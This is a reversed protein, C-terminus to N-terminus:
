PRSRRVAKVELTYEWHNLRGRRRVLRFQRGFVPSTQWGGRNSAAVYGSKHHVLIQFDIEEHRADVLWYESVRALHYQKRLQKTDKRVSSKSIIELIWDPSGELEIYQGEEGERPILRVRGSELGEWTVFTADPETSLNAEVNTVLTGDPYFEGRKTRKNLGVLVYGIEGKVKGHTEIEEPSMDIFIERDLFSIRGREPFDDSKAWTRFGDLTHASPPVVVQHDPLIVARAVPVGDADPLATSRRKQVPATSM